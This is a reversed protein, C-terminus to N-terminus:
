EDRCGGQELESIEKRISDLMHKESESKQFLPTFVILNIYFHIGAMFISALFLGIIEFGVPDEDFCWFLFIVIAFALITVIVRKRKANEVQKEREALLKYLENKDM